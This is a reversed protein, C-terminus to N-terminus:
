SPLGARARALYREHLRAVRERLSQLDADNPLVEDAHRLREERSVQAAMLARAQAESAGDRQMLRARQLAEPVDVVLVSDARDQQGTEVLLPVAVICYPAQQAAAREWLTQNIAPHLIAELRKRARPDAFVLARLRDRRLSGDQALVEPGFAEVVEALLASGPRVVERAVADADIVPVGLAEFLASVTSKGCAVGGTMAVIYPRPVARAERQSDQM